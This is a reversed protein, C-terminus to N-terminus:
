RELESWDSKEGDSDLMLAEDDTDVETQQHKQVPSPPSVQEPTLFTDVTESGDEQAQGERVETETTPNVEVSYPTVTATSQEVASGDTEHVSEDGPALVEVPAIVTEEVEVPGSPESIVVTPEQAPAAEPEASPTVSVLSLRKEVAEGVFNGISELAKEVAKVVEKRKERVETDGHSDIKDLEELLGNLENEYKYVPKNTSAYPILKRLDSSSVSSVSATEDRDDPSPDYHELETPLIFDAQLKGLKDHVREVSSLAIARDIQAQEGETVAPKASSSLPSSGSPGAQDPSRPAAASKSFGMVHRLINAFAEDVSEPKQAPKRAEEVDVERAKGKGKDSVGQQSQETSPAPEPQQRSTLGPFISSLLTEILKSADEGSAKQKDSEVPRTRLSSLINKIPDAIDADSEAALRQQLVDALPKRKTVHPQRTIQPISKMLVPCKLCIGISRVPQLGKSQQLFANLAHQREVALLRARAQQSRVFEARRAALLEQQQRRELEAALVAFYQRRAAEALQQRRIVAEKEAQRRRHNVVVELAQQYEREELEEASPQLFFDLNSPYSQSNFRHADYDLYDHHIPRCGHLQPSSYSTPYIPSATPYVRFM